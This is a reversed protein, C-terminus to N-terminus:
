LSKGESLMENVKALLERQGGYLRAFEKSEHFMSPGWIQRMETATYDIRPEGRHHWPGLPITAQNGGSHTRYGHDVLHHIEAYGCPITYGKLLCAVCGLERLAAYRTEDRTPRTRIM